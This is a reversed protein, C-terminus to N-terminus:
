LRRSLPLRGRNLFQRQPVSKIVTLPAVGPVVERRPILSCASCALFCGGETAEGGTETEQHSGQTGAKAERSHLMYLVYVGKEGFQKQDLPKDYGCLAFM